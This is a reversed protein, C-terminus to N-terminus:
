KIGTIRKSKRIDYRKNKFLNKEKLNYIRFPYHTQGHLQIDM